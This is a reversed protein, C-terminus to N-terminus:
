AADKKKDLKYPHKLMLDALYLDFPTDIDLSRAPPIMVYGVRGDILRTCNQVYDPTTVYLCTTIDYMDPVDQRRVANSGSIAIELLDDGNITVMNLYPNRHAESIGLLVDCGGQRFKEIAADVDEPARLPSTAPLSIFMKQAALDKKCADVAHRWALIEPTDDAALDDPRMLVDAGYKRAVDAIDTSDTSVVVRAIYSSELACLISHAILPKGGVERINKNKVGKSGGRAFIFATLNKAVTM